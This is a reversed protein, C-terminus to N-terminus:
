LSYGDTSVGLTESNRFIYSVAAALDQTAVMGGHGARYRLVFANYGKSSIAAAHPFGEHVSGVHSFGGGPSVVAFPAGPSGRFFFLGTNDRAPEQQREAKSYFRYFVTRGRAAEDIMRNLAGAVTEPDVHSHYPLLSGIRTLPMQEDYTRDDWPLLLHGFGGFSPHRLVDRLASQAGLHGGRTASVYGGGCHVDSKDGDNAKRPASPRLRCRGRAIPV